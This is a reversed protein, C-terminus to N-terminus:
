RRVYIVVSKDKYVETYSKQVRTQWDLPFIRRALDDVIVTNSQKVLDQFLKDPMRTKTVAFYHTDAVNYYFTLEKKAFLGFIPRATLVPPEAQKLENVASFFEPTQRLFLAYGLYPLSALTVCLIISCAYLLRRHKSKIVTGIFIGSSLVLGVVCITLYHPYFPRGSLFVIGLSCLTFLGLHRYRGKIFLAGLIGSIFIPWNISIIPLLENVRQPLSIYERQLHYAFVNTIGEPIFFIPIYGAMVVASFCVILHVSNKTLLGLTAKTQKETTLIYFFLFSLSIFANTVISIAFLGLLIGATRFAQKVYLYYLGFAFFPLSFQRLAFSYADWGVLLPFTVFLVIAVWSGIRSKSLHLCTFYIPFIASFFWLIYLLRFLMISRHSVWLFIAAAYFLFPPHALFFDKYPIFGDLLLQPTYLYVGEDTRINVVRGATYYQIGVTIIFLVCVFLINKHRMLFTMGIFITCKGQRISPYNAECYYNNIQTNVLFSLGQLICIYM